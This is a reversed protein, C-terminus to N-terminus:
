VTKLWQQLFCYSIVHRQSMRFLKFVMAWISFGFEGDSLEEIKRPDVTCASAWIESIFCNTFRVFFAYLRYHHKASDFLSEYRKYLADACEFLVPDNFGNKKM